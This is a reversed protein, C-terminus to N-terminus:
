FPSPNFALAPTALQSLSLAQAPWWAGAAPDVSGGYEPDGPGATGRTCSGDSEGPVKVWLYADVLPVGTSATPRVGLGRAPPNCWDQADTYAGAPPTWPGQGNRSTDIVFHTLTATAPVHDAYWTDADAPPWYQNACDDGSAGPTNQLYWICQAVETGYRTLEADSRYNSVDLFFGQAGAVGATILRQAIDGVAHWASHGADLYVITKPQAELRTVAANIQTNRDAQQDPTGGCQDPSLAIGDPELIVVTKRDGIGNAFGDIWAAYAATGEAGGASYQSCDRGPIDYAVAVPVQGQRAAKQELGAVSAQVDAPTGGTFWTAVPYSALEAMTVADSLDRAKLDTVAQTAAESDLNIYFHTSTPLTRDIHVAAASPQAQGLVLIAAAAGAIGLRLTRSSL